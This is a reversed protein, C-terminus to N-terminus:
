QNASREMLDYIRSKFLETNKAYDKQNYGFLGM